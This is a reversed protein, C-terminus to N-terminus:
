TEDTIPENHLALADILVLQQGDDGDEGDLKIPEDCDACTFHSKSRRKAAAATGGLRGPQM